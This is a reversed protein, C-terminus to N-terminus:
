IWASRHPASNGLDIRSEDHLRALATIWASHHPAANWNCSRIRRPPTGRHHHHNNPAVSNKNDINGGGNPAGGAWGAASYDGTRVTDAPCRHRRRPLPPAVTAPCRRRLSESSIM